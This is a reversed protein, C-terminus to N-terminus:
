ILLICITISLGDSTKQFSRKIKISRLVSDLIQPNYRNPGKFYISKAHLLLQNIFSLEFGLVFRWFTEQGLDKLPLNNPPLRKKM